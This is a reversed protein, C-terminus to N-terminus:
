FVRASARRRCATNPREADRIRMVMQSFNHHMWVLAHTDLLVGVPMQAVM